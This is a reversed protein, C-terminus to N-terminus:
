ALRSLPRFDVELAAHDSMRNTRFEQLYHCAVPNLTPTAFVHDFRRDFARDKHKVRFSFATESYGNLLRYVDPLGYRGLGEIVSREGADWRAGVGGRIKRRISVTGDSSIRQGFTIVTGDASEAQPCNFDGCVIRPRAIQQALHTFLGEFTEIKIWGYQSGPPVHCNFLDIAGYPTEVSTALVAEPWPVEVKDLM